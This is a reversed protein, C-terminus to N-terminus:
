EYPLGGEQKNNTINPRRSRPRGSSYMDPPRFSNDPKNTTAPPETFRYFPSIFFSLVKKIRHLRYHANCMYKGNGIEASCTPCVMRDCGPEACLHLHENCCALGCETCYGAFYPVSEEQGNVAVAHPGVCMMVVQSQKKTRIMSGDASTFVETAEKGLCRADEDFDAVVTSHETKETISVSDKVQNGDLNQFMQKFIENTM